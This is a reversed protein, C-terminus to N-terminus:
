TRSRAALFMARIHWGITGLVLLIIVPVFLPSLGIHSTRAADIIAYQVWLLMAAIELQLWAIMDLSIAQLRPRTAPTVRVPYNFSQPFRAVLSMLGLVVTAIAPMLWLMAPTGWGNPKGAFDFHTPIRDPLPHPGVMAYATLGWMALLAAFAAFKLFTRM